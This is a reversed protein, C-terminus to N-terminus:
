EFKKFDIGYFNSFYFHNPYLQRLVRNWQIATVGKMGSGRLLNFLGTEIRDSATHGVQIMRYRHFTAMRQCSQYRWSRAGAETFCGGVQRGRSSLLSVYFALLPRRRPTRNKNYLCLRQNVRKGVAKPWQTLDRRQALPPNTTPELIFYIPEGLLFSLRMLHHMTHFADCHWLHNCWCLGLRDKRQHKRQLFLSLLTMSDQGGSLALLLRTNAQLFQNRDLAQHISNVLHISPSLSRNMRRPKM